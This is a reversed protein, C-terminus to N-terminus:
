YSYVVAATGPLTPGHLARRQGAAEAILRKAAPDDVGAANVDAVV